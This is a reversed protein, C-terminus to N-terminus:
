MLEEFKRVIDMLQEDLYDSLKAKLEEPVGYYAETIGGAIAALTDSDGGISICNRIVDEYDEGEYFCQLAEKIRSSIM